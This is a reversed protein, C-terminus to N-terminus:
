VRSPACARLPQSPVGFSPLGRQGEPASLEAKTPPLFSSLIANQGSFTTGSGTPLGQTPCCGPEGVAQAGAGTDGSHRCPLATHEHSPQPRTARLEHTASICVCLWATAGAGATGPSSQLALTVASCSPRSGLGRARDPLAAPGGSRGDVQRPQSHATRWLGTPEAHGPTDRDHRTQETSQGCCHPGLPHSFPLNLGPSQGLPASGGGARPLPPRLM